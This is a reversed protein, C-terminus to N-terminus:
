QSSGTYNNSLEFKARDLWDTKGVRNKYIRKTVRLYEGNPVVQIQIPIEMEISRFEAECVSKPPLPSTNGTLERWAQWAKMKAYGDHDFCLWESVQLVGCDYEIRYSEVGKANTHIMRRWSKVNLIRAKRESTLIVASGDARGDHGPETSAETFQFACKWCKRSPLSNPSGCEPCAKMPPLADKEGRKKPPERERIADVPGHKAIVGAFDLVLCDSKGDALRTGRGVMQIYRGTSLTPRMLAIMDVSPVNFGTTLVAVSTLCRIRGARFDEILRKREGAPTEGVVTEAHIGRARLAEAVARAHKVGCCFALWSRRANGREIMEDCAQGIKGNDALAAKELEGAVYEGGRTSVRSVDIESQGAKSVLPALFGDKIGRAIDYSYVIREFLAGDGRDLRGSDLRYPTATYGVLRADTKAANEQIFRGYMTDTNRPVLHCEDILLLDFGGLVDSKSHVSQIGAFLIQARADRRGIGASYIGVPAQPWARLMEMCNQEILEKVHTLVCIRMGPYQTLLERAPTAIALSKGTGTAMAILANGGGDDWHQYLADIAERQYPRLELM